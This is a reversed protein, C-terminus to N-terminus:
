SEFEEEGTQINEITGDNTIITDPREGDGTFSLQCGGGSRGATRKSRFTISWDDPNRTGKETKFIPNGDKDFYQKNHETSELTENTRINNSIEIASLMEAPNILKPNGRRLNKVNNKGILAALQDDSVAESMLKGYKKDLAEMRQAQLKYYEDPSLNMADLEKQIKQLETAYDASISAIKKKDDSSFVDGLDVEDLTDTIFNETKQATENRDKGIVLDDNILMTYGKEGIYQGQNNRKSEDQHIECITKSNAPCGHIRGQKDYKCSILAVSELEDGGNKIKDGVPFTGSSPLYVEEGRALESQYLAMEAQQKMIAGVMDSDANNMDVMLKNYSALIAQAAEESPIEMEDYIRELEAQHAKLAKGVGPDINGKKIEEDVAKITKKLSPNDFSQRLYEKSHKSSPLKPEGDDDLVAFIGTNNERIKNLPDKKHLDQLYKNKFPHKVVNESGLDPKAANTIKQKVSKFDIAPLPEGIIEEITAVLLESNNTGQKGSIVKREGGFVNFYAKRKNKSTKANTTLKMNEILWKAAARREELPRSEDLVIASKENAEKALKKQEENLFKNKDVRTNFDNTVKQVKGGSQKEKSSKKKSSKKKKPKEEPKGTKKDGMYFRGGKPGVQMKAGEPGPGKQVYVKGVAEELNKLLEVRANIPWKEEKLIDWLKMLHQEKTLDPIGSSVRYSLENLIKNWNNKM